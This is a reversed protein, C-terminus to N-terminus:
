GFLTTCNSSRGLPLRGKQLHLGAVPMCLEKSVHLAAARYVGKKQPQQIVQAPLVLRQTKGHALSLTFSSQDQVSPCGCAM